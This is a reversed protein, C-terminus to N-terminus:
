AFFGRHPRTSAHCVHCRWRCTPIMAGEVGGKRKREYGEVSLLARLPVPARRPRLDMRVVSRWIQRLRGAGVDESCGGDGGGATSADLLDNAGPRSLRGDTRGRGRRLRARGVPRCRKWYVKCRSGAELAAPWPDTFRRRPGDAARYLRNRTALPSSAEMAERRVRRSWLAEKSMAAMPALLIAVRASSEAQAMATRASSWSSTLAVAISTREAIGRLRALTGARCSRSRGEKLRGRAAM